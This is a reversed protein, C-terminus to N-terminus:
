VTKDELFVGNEPILSDFENRFEDIRHSRSFKHPYPNRDQNREAQIWNKRNETYKTPDVEEVVKQKGGSEGKKAAEEAKKADKAAKEAEKKRLKQRTKLENKSVMEGTVDDLYLKPADKSEEATADDPKKEQEVM